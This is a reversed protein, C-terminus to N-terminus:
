FMKPKLISGSEEKLEQKLIEKAMDVIVPVLKLLHCNAPVCWCELAIKQHNQVIDQAIEQLANFMPGKIALDEKLDNEFQAIVRERESMSKSTKYNKNGFIPSARHGIIIKEDSHARYEEEGRLNVVRVYDAPNFLKEGLYSDKEEPKSLDIKILGKKVVSEQSGHIKKEKTLSFKM